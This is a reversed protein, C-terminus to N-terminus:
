LCCCCCCCCLEPDEDPISVPPDDIPPDPDPDVAVPPPDEETPPAPASSTTPPATAPPEEAPPQEVPPEEVPPQQEAAPPEDPVEPPSSRMWDAVKDVIAEGLEEALMEKAMDEVADGVDSSGPEEAAVARALAQTQTIATPLEALLQQVLAQGNAIQGQNAAAGQAQLTAVQAITAAAQVAWSVITADQQILTMVDAYSASTHAWLSPPSGVYGIWDSTSGNTQTGIFEAQSGQPDVPGRYFLISGSTTNGGTAPWQLQLQAFSTGSLAQGGVTVTGDTGIVVAPGATQTSPDGTPALQSQYTGAWYSIQDFIGAAEANAVAGATTAYGQSSLYSDIPGTNYTATATAQQEAQVLGNLLTWDFVLDGAFRMAEQAPDASMDETGGEIPQHTISCLVQHQASQL